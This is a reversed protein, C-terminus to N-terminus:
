VMMWNLSLKFFYNSVPTKQFQLLIMKELVEFGKGKTTEFLSIITVIRQLGAIRYGFSSKVDM